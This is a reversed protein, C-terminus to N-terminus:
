QKELAGIDHLTNIPRPNRAFDYRISFGYRSEFADLKSALAGSADSIKDLLGSGTDPTFDNGAEDVVGADSLTVSNAGASVGNLSASGAAIYANYDFASPTGDAWNVHYSSMNTPAYILNGYCSSSGGSGAASIGGPYNQITNCLIDAAMRATIGHPTHPNSPNFGAGTGDRCINFLVAPRTTHGDSTSQFMIGGGNNYSLNGLFWLYEFDYQGGFGAAVSGGGSPDGDHSVNGSYIVDTANKIWGGTQYHHDFENGAIFILYIDEPDNNQDGVQICDGQIHHFHNGIIWQNNGNPKIGHHDEYSDPWTGENESVDNNYIMTHNSALHLAEGTTTNTDILTCGRLTQYSGAFAFIPDGNGSFHLGDVIVYSGGVGCQSTFTPTDGSAAVIFTPDSSSGTYSVTFGSFSGGADSVVIVSGAPPSSPLSGRPNAPYGNSGNSGGAQVYYFGTVNSTWPSPLTNPTITCPDYPWSSYGLSELSTNTYTPYPIGLYGWAEAGPSSVSGAGVIASSGVQLVGAGARGIVGGGAIAATLAAAAGLGAINRASSGSVIAPGAYLRTAPRIITM